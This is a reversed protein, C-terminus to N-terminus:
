EVTAGTIMGKEAHSKGGERDSIFCAFLYKGKKLGLDSVVTQERDIVATGVAAAFDVAPEGKETEFFRKAEAITKGGVIPMAVLHHPQQGVNEFAVPEGAKLTDNEFTYESGTVTQGEPLEADVPDGSVEFVAFTQKTAKGGEEQEAFAFYRGEDFEQTATASGGPKASATGGAALIWDPIKGGDSVENYVKLIESETRDGEIKILQISTPQKRDNQFSIETVGPPTSAPAEVAKDTASIALQAPEGSTDGQGGGEGEDDDDGCAAFTMAAATLLAALATMWKM